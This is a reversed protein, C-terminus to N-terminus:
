IGGYIFHWLYPWIVESASGGRGSWVTEWNSCKWKKNERVFTLIDGGCHDKGVYYVKAFNSSYKLVRLYEIAGLMTNEHYIESFEHGHLHTLIECKGLSIIWVTFIIVILYIFIKKISKM